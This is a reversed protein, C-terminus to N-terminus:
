LKYGQRALLTWAGKSKTFLMLTGVKIEIPKGEMELKGNFVNRVVATKGTIKITQDTTEISSFNVRGSSLSAIFATKDEIKGNSHGFSLDAATLKELVSQDADVMAKHFNTVINSLKQEEATQALAVTCFLVTILSFFFTKM